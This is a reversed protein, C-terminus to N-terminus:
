HCVLVIGSIDLNQTIPLVRYLLEEVTYINYKRSASRSKSVIVSFIVQLHLVTTQFDMHDNEINSSNLIIINGYSIVVKERHWPSHHEM